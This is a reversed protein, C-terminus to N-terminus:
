VLDWAEGVGAQSNPPVVVDDDAVDAHLGGVVAAVEDLELLGGLDPNVVAVEGVVANDSALIVVVAEKVHLPGRVKDGDGPGLEVVVYTEGWGKTLDDHRTKERERKM